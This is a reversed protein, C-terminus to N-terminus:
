PELPQIHSHEIIPSAEPSGYSDIQNFSNYSGDIYESAYTNSAEPGVNLMM